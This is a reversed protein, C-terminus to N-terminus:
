APVARVFQIAQFGPYRETLHLESVYRSFQQRDVAGSVAFMGKLSLLMDFYTNLRINTDFAVKEADRTFNARIRADQADMVILCTAATICLGVAFTLYGHNRM